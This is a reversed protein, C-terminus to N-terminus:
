DKLSTLKWKPLLFCTVQQLNFLMRPVSYVKSSDYYSLRMGTNFIKRFFVDTRHGPPDAQFKLTQWNFSACLLKQICSRCQLHYGSNLLLVGSADRPRLNHDGSNRSDPALGNSQDRHSPRSVLTSFVEFLELYFYISM